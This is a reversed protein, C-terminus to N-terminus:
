FESWNIDGEIDVTIDKSGDFEKGNISLIGPTKLVKLKYDLTSSKDDDIFIGEITEDTRLNFVRNFGDIKHTLKTVGEEVDEDSLTISLSSNKMVELIDSLSMDPNLEQNKAALIEQIIDNIDDKKPSYIRYFYPYKDLLSVYVRGLSTSETVFYITYSNIKNNSVLYQYSSLDGVWPTIEEVKIIM